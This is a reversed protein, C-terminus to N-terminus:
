LDLLHGGEIAHGLGEWMRVDVIDEIRRGREELCGILVAQEVGADAWWPGPVRRCVVPLLDCAARVSDAAARLTDVGAQRVAWALMGCDPAPGRQTATTAYSGNALFAAGEFCDSQDAAVVHWNRDRGPVLLMNGYVDRDINMFWSDMVWLRVFEAPETLSAADVPPGPLVDNRRVTGFHLGPLVAYPVDTGEYSAAFREGVSVLAAELTAVRCAQLLGHCIVESILAAAGERGQQFKVVYEVGPTDAHNRRATCFVRRPRWRTVNGLMPGADRYAHVLPLSDPRM